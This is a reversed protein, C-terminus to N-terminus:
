CKEAARLKASASRSNGALEEEGATVPRKTLVSLEATKNCRCIPLEPPCICTLARYRFARKVIRDELSHFSIVVIRTGPALLDIATELGDKLHKLEDNVAIRLAQFCCSIMQPLRKRRHGGIRRVLDVLRASRHWPQQERIRVIERALARSQAIEGYARFIRSLEDESATNLVQAATVRDGRDMRMDLLSDTSYSFGRSTDDFQHSSAGLDLIVGDVEDWDLEAAIRAMDVYNGHVIHCRDGFSRLCGAAFEVAEPDRDIGLVNVLANCEFIASAHGGFGVTGDIYRRGAQPRLYHIVEATLVPIHPSTEGAPRQCDTM